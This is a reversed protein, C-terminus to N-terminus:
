LIKRSTLSTRSTDCLYDIANLIYKKKIKAATMEKIKIDELLEATLVITGQRRNAKTVTKYEALAFEEKKFEKRSVYGGAKFCPMDSKM